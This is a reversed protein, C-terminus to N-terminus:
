FIKNINLVAETSLEGINQNPALVEGTPTPKKIPNWIIKRVNLLGESLTVWKGSSVEKFHLLFKLTSTFYNLHLTM